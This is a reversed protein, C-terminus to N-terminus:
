GLEIREQKRFTLLLLINYFPSIIGESKKRKKEKKSLFGLAKYNNFLKNSKRFVLFLISSNERQFLSFENFIDLFYIIILILVFFVIFTAM